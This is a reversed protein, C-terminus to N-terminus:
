LIDRYSMVGEYWNKRGTSRLKIYTYVSGLILMTASFAFLILPNCSFVWYNFFLIRRNIANFLLSIVLAAAESIMLRLAFRGLFILAFRRIVTTRNFGCYEFVSVFAIDYEFDIRCLEIYLLLSMLSMFVAFVICGYCLGSVSDFGSISYDSIRIDNINNKEVEDRFAKLKNYDSFFLTYDRHGRFFFTESRELDAFLEGNVFFLDKNISNVQKNSVDMSACFSRFYLKEKVNLERMVGVVVLEVCGMGYINKQLTSGILEVPNSSHSIANEHTLIVQRPSTFWTGYEILDPVKILDIDSPFAPLFSDYLFAGLLGDSSEVAEPISDGYNIVVESEEFAAPLIESLKRENRTRLNIVNLDYLNRESQVKKSEASDFFCVLLFALTMLVQFWIATSKKRKDSNFWKNLYPTITVPKKHFPTIQEAPEPRHLLRSSITKDHKDIEVVYDAYEVAMRDHTSAIVTMRSGLRKLLNFIQEKNEGDLSATPEDLLMIQCGKLLARIVALKQREGGSLTHPYAHERDKLGFEILLDDISKDVAGVLELNERVTLYDVFFVDQTIYGIIEGVEVRKDFIHGSVEVYGGDFELVGSLINLLTTKGCGSEGILVYFGTDDFEINVRDLVKSKSFAKSIDTCKIM